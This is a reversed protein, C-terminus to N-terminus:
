NHFFELHNGNGNGNGCHDANACYIENVLSIEYEKHEKWKNRRKKDM